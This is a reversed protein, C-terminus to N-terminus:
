QARSRKELLSIGGDSARPRFGHRLLGRWARVACSRPVLPTAGYLDRHFAVYRVGLTRLDGRVSPSARGCNLAQLRRAVEVARGPALTSYGTPRERPAQMAYYPYVSAYHRDPLFVPLELLRGRPQARLAAYARNNEGHGTPRFPSVGLRLDLAILALALAPAAPSRLRAVAVAALAALALCAVPLLRAPVRTHQLGPLHHWLPEYGPLNAGLALAAPVVAGAVLVFAQGPRRQALLVALGALALLPTAWGLLVFRELETDGRRAVFDGLEASYREVQAFSRGGTGASGRIGVAYVLLGALASPVVVVAAQVLSRRRVITYAAAFPIAALALHVQGSLPISALVAAALLPRRREWAWLALPLLLAAWALLHGMASQAVRYPALAFALGGVLAAGRPLGLARLWLATAGGAALYGLVVFANWAGVRGLVAELPPWVAGFPWGAVNVRREAEPQFSYPDLWPPKGRGLQHGSLWLQYITQLHDGPAASSTAPGRALFANGADSLAPWTSVFGAGLYLACALAVFGARGGAARRLRSGRGLRLAM